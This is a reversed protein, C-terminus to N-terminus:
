DPSLADFSSLCDALCALDNFPLQPPYTPSESQRRRFSQGSRFRLEFRQSCNVDLENASGPRITMTMATLTKDDHLLLVRRRVRFYVKRLSWNEDDAASGRAYVLL